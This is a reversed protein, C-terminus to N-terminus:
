SVGRQNLWYEIQKKIWEIFEADNELKMFEEKNVESPLPIRLTIFPSITKEIKEQVKDYKNVPQQTM